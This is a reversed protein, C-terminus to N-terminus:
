WTCHLCRHRSSSRPGAAQHQRSTSAEKWLIRLVYIDTDRDGHRQSLRGSGVAGSRSDHSRTTAASECFKGPSPVPFGGAYISPLRLGNRSPPPQCPTVPVIFSADTSAEQVENTKVHDDDRGPKTPALPHTFSFSLCLAKNERRSHRFTPFVTFSAHSHICPCPPYRNKSM